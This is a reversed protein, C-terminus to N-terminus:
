RGTKELLYILTCAKRRCGYRQRLAAAAEETYQTGLTVTAYDGPILRVAFFVVVSIGLLVPIISVLRKLIYRLM